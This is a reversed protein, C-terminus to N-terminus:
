IPWIRGAGSLARNGLKCLDGTAFWFLRKGARTMTRLSSVVTTHNCAAVPPPAM